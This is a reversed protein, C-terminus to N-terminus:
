KNGFLSGLFRKAWSEGQEARAHEMIIELEGKDLWIGGSDECQDVNVGYLTLPKMPKGTIPSPRPPNNAGEKLRKVANENIKEFYQEERAKRMEDWSDNMTTTGKSDHSNKFTIRPHHTTLWYQYPNNKYYFCLQM